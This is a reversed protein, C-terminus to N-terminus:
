APIRDVLGALEREFADTVAHADPLTDPCCLVSVHMSGRYSWVTVNLGVGELLPGVSQLGVLEAGAIFLPDRPGPVNSVIANIPPRRVRPVIARWILRYALPPSYEVWQEMTEVGLANQLEKAARAVRSAARLREIPDAVDIPLSTMLNSTRNGILRVTDPDDSSV